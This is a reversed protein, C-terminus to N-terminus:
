CSMKAEPGYVDLSVSAKKMVVRRPERHATNTMAALGMTLVHIFFVFTVATAVIWPISM